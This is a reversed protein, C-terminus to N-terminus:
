SGLGSLGSGFLHDSTLFAVVEVSKQGRVEESINQSRKACAKLWLVSIPICM